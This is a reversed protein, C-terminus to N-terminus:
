FLHYIFYFFCQLAYRFNNLKMYNVLFNYVFFILIRFNCWMANSVDFRFNIFQILKRNPAVLDSDKYCYNIYCKTSIRNTHHIVSTVYRRNCAVKCKKSVLILKSNEKPLIFKKSTM